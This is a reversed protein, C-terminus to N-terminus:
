QSMQRLLGDYEAKYTLNKPDLMYAARYEEIAGRLAGKEKVANGLDYHASDNSPNLRMAERYEAIAGDWDYKSFFAIGVLDQNRVGSDQERVAM